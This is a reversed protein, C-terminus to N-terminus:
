RISPGDGALIRKFAAGYRESFYLQEPTERYKVAPRLGELAAQLTFFRISEPTCTSLAPRYAECFNRQLGAIEEDSLHAKQASLMLWSWFKGVDRSPSGNPEGQRDLSQHLRNFDIFTVQHDDGVILNGMHGDGHVVGNTGPNRQVGAWAEDVARRIDRMDLGLAQVHDSYKDLSQLTLDLKKRYMELYAMPARTGSGPASSHLDALAGGGDKVATRLSALAAQRDAAQPVAAVIEDISRGPAMGMAVIGTQQGHLETEGLALVRPAHANGMPQHNLYMLGDVERVFSAAETPVKVVSLIRDDHRIALVASGSKGGRNLDQLTIAAAPLGVAAAAFPMLAQMSVHPLSDLLRQQAAPEVEGRDTRTAEVRAYVDATPFAAVEAQPRPRVRTPLPRDPRLSADTVPTM